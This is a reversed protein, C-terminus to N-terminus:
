YIKKFSLFVPSAIMFTWLLFGLIGSSLVYELIFNHPQIVVTLIGDNSVCEYQQLGIGMLPAKKIDEIAQKWASFRMSSSQEPSKEAADILEKIKEKDVK